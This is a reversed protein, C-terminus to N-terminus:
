RYEAKIAGWSTAEAATVGCGVDWAGILGCPPNGTPACPSDSHLTYPQGPNQGRCLLPDECINGNIGLQGAIALTWDGGENGYLDCCFLEVRGGFSVWTAPGETGFAMITNEVDVASAELCCLGTGREASNDCFTSNTITSSSGDRFTVGAGWTGINDSFTCDAITADDWCTLGGGTNGSFICDAVAGGYLHAGGGANGSFVSQFLTGGGLMGGDTNGSFTCDAFAGDDCHAGGGINGLFTCDTVVAEEVHLGGGDNALFVCHDLVASECLLGGDENGSFTCGTFRLTSYTRSYVGSETNDSFKCDTFTLSPGQNCYIGGGGWRAYNDEFVCGTLRVVCPASWCYMGGAWQTASNRTFACDELTMTSRRCYIGGGTGDSWESDVINGSFVCSTFTVSSDECYVGGGFHAVNDVFACHAIELSADECYMGGGFDQGASGRTITFGEIRSTPDINVCRLGRVHYTADITVCDAQGTESRLCIGSRMYINGEDYTGCAVLVTDGESAANIGAQITPRDDPVRITTAPALASAAIVLAVAVIWGARTSPCRARSRSWHRM